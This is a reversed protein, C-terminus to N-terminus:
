CAIQKKISWHKWTYVGELSSILCVAFTASEVHRLTRWWLLGQTPALSAGDWHNSGLLIRTVTRVWRQSQTKVGQYGPSRWCLQPEYINIRRISPLGQNPLNIWRCANALTRLPNLDGAVLPLCQCCCRDGDDDWWSSAPGWMSFFRRRHQPVHARHNELRVPIRAWILYTTTIPQSTVGVNVLAQFKWSVHTHSLCVTGVFGCLM